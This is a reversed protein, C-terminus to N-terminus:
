RDRGRRERGGRLWGVLKDREEATLKAEPHLPRYIPLPMKDAQVAKGSRRLARTQQDPDLQDWESFNVTERGENVDHVILFSVPAVYAYWPWKSENSHCDYCARRLLADIEPPAGLDKTVPPNKRGTPVLQLLVLALLVFRGVRWARRLWHGRKPQTSM